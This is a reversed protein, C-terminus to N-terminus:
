NNKVEWLRGSSVCDVTERVGFIAFHTATVYQGVAHCRVSYEFRVAPAVSFTEQFLKANFCNIVYVHAITYVSIFKLFGKYSLFERIDQLYCAHVHILLSSERM